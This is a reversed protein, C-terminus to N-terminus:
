PTHTHTHIFSLFAHFEKCNVSVRFDIQVQILVKRRQKDIHFISAQIPGLHTHTSKTNRNADDVLPSIYAIADSHHFMLFLANRVIFPFPFPIPLSAVATAADTSGTYFYISLAWVNKTTPIISEFWCMSRRIKSCMFGSMKRYIFALIQLSVFVFQHIVIIAYSCIFYFFFLLLSCNLQHDVLIFHSKNLMKREDYYCKSFHTVNELMQRVPRSLRLTINEKVMANSISIEKGWWEMLAQILLKERLKM